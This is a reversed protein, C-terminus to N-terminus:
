KKLKKRIRQIANDVQKSTKGLVEAIRTYEMGTLMLNLVKREFASLEQRIRLEMRDVNERDILMEEPSKENPDVLVEFLPMEDDDEQKQFLSIYSNLPLQKQRKSSEIATYMKRTVCVDAYHSFSVEREERYTRVANLLGIMGEQILDEREGGILYMTGAKALVMEKYRTLLKDLAKEDGEAIQKLLEADRKNRNVTM